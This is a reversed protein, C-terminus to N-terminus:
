LSFAQSVSDIYRDIIICNLDVEVYDYGIADADRGYRIIQDLTHFVFYFLERSHRNFLDIDKNFANSHYILSSTFDMSNFDTSAARKCFATRAAAFPRSAFFSHILSNFTNGTGSPSVPVLIVMVIMAAALSTAAISFGVISVIAFASEDPEKLPARPLEPTIKDWNNRPKVFSILSDLSIVTVLRAFAKVRADKSHASELGVLSIITQLNNKVRHHVEHILAVRSAVEDELQRVRTKDRYVAAFGQCVEEEWIGSLTAELIHGAIEVEKKITGKQGLVEARSTDTLQLDIVNRGVLPMSYGAEQYLEEAKTNAFMCIGDKDYFLLADQLCSAAKSLQNRFLGTEGEKNKIRIPETDMAANPYEYTLSGIVRGDKSLIPSVTHRVLLRGDDIIGILGRGSIGKELARYVAPEDEKKEIDGIISRKYLDCDPHRYQAVVMSEGNRTLVNIYTDGSELSGVFPLSHAMELLIGMDEDSLDTFRRVLYVMQRDVDDRVLESKLTFEKEM